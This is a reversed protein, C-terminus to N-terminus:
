PDEQNGSCLFDILRFNRKFSRGYSRELYLSSSGEVFTEYPHSWSSFFCLSISSKTRKITHMNCSPQTLRTGRASLLPGASLPLGQFGSGKKASLHCSSSRKVSNTLSPILRKSSLLAEACWGALGTFTKFYLWPLNTVPVGLSAHVAMVQLLVQALCFPLHVRSCQEWTRFSPFSIDLLGDVRWVHSTEPTVILIM